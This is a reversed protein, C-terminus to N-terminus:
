QLPTLEDRRLGTRQVVDEISRTVFFVSAVTLAICLGPALFWWWAQEMAGSLFVHQLMRGWSWVTPDTFGLFSIAAEALIANGVAVPLYVFSVPLVSPLIHFGMIRAHSCGLARASKVFSWESISLVQTRVVRASKSCNPIRRPPSSTSRMASVLSGPPNM